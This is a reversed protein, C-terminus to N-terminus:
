LHKVKGVYSEVKEDFDHIGNKIIITADDIEKVKKAFDEQNREKEFLDYAKSVNPILNNKINNIWINGIYILQEIKELEMRAEMCRKELRNYTDKRYLDRFSLNYKEMVSNLKQKGENYHETLLEVTLEMEELKSVINRIEPINLKDESLNLENNKTELNLDKKRRDFSTEINDQLMEDLISEDDEVISTEDIEDNNTDILEIENNEENTSDLTPNIEDINDQVVEDLVSKDKDEEESVFNTEILQESVKDDDQVIPKIEESNEHVVEDIPKIIEESQKNNEINDKIDFMDESLNNKNLYKSRLNTNRNSTKNNGKKSRTVKMVKKIKKNNTKVKKNKKAKRNSSSKTGKIEKVSKVINKVNSACSIGFCAGTALGILTGASGIGVFSAVKPIFVISAVGLATKGIAKLGNKGINNANKVGKAINKAKTKFNKKEKNNSIKNQLKQGYNLFSKLSGNFKNNDLRKVIKDFEYNPKMLHLKIRKNVVDKIDEPLELYTEYDLNSLEEEYETNKYKSSVEEGILNFIDNYNKMLRIDSNFM